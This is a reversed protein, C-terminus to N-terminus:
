RASTLQSDLLAMKQSDAVVQIKRIREEGVDLTIVANLERGAFALVVVGPATPHSVLTASSFFRILNTAVAQSGRATRGTRADHPGLDVSGWVEPDLLPVLEAVSGSSCARIFREVLERHTSREVESSTSGESAIRTRARRALQRCTAEPRGMTEAISDFPFGFVDHLVFAVREAPRLRQLVVLLAISIEDDLTVRDAPDVAAGQALAPGAPELLENGHPRERRVSASRVHDICIRSTVVVLWGRPDEIAGIDATTLRAFAEQVADEAAGIEGLIGFALDVLFPGNDQWIGALRAEEFTHQEAM